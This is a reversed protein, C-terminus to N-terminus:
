PAILALREQLAAKEANLQVIQADIEVIRAEATEVFRAVSHPPVPTQTGAIVFGEGSAELEPGAYRRVNRDVHRDNHSM